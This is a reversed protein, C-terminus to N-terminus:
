NKLFGDIGFITTLVPENSKIIFTLINNGEFPRNIQQASFIFETNTDNFGSSITFAVTMNPDISIVPKNFKLMVKVGFLPLNENNGLNIITTYIGLSDKKQSYTLLFVKTQLTQNVIIKGIINKTNSGYINLTKVENINNVKPQQGFSVFTM